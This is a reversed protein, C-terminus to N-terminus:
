DWGTETGREGPATGAEARLGSPMPLVLRDLGAAVLGATRRRPAAQVIVEGFRGWMAGRKIVGSLHEMVLGPLEVLCGTIVVRRLGLVNLAGAIVAGTTELAAALWPVVGREAIHQALVPWAPAGGRDAEAFSALLGRSSVLTELCGVAGCGCPRQNGPVPTHGLEGSIPLPNAYPKGGVIVAGGVGEGFDVLLFDDGRPDASQHGLALAREEQVLLVPANWVQGILKPLEVRETWHLNPSFLVRGAPEDVLGPVSVLVGWFHKQHIRGAAAALQRLWEEASGPTPVQVSWRDDAEAGVPLAALRTETVGLEMALFRPHRRNLRLMRGPRGLRNPAGTKRPAGAEASEVEELIGRELLKDVIKGATPQSMGLGKALDARSAVGLSQLRGILTRENLRRM